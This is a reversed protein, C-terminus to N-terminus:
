KGSLCDTVKLAGVMGECRGEGGEFGTVIAESDDFKKVKLFYSSRKGEYFSKPDKIMIGEGGLNIVRDM